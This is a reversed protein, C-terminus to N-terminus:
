RLIRTQYQELVPDGTETKCSILYTIFILPGTKGQKQKIDSLERRFVLKDKPKVTRFFKFDVGGAMVRKLPLEPILSAKPLGDVELNELPVIERSLGAVFMPPAEDGKLYKDLLQETSISYKIIDSRNVEIEVPPDSRGIWSLAEATVLNNM